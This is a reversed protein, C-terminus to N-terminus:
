WEEGADAPDFWDPAPERAFAAMDDQNQAHSAAFGYVKASPHDAQALALTDFAKVRRRKPRGALVSGRDYISHGWVWFTERGSRVEREITFTEKAM